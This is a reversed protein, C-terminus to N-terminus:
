APICRTCRRTWPSAPAATFSSICIAWVTVDPTNALAALCREAASLWVDPWQEAWNPRPKDPASTDSAQALVAGGPGTLLAKTSQTGIDIGIVADM